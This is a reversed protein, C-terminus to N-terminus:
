RILVLKGQDRRKGQELRYFYVSAPCRRGGADLGNWAVRHEGAPLPARVLDRVWRGQADFIALRVPGSRPLAFGVTAQEAFPNPYAPDLRFALATGGEPQGPAGSFPHEFIRVDDIAAEVTSSSGLDSAIFRLRMADTVTVVSPLDFTRMTWIPATTTVTELTVWTGGGDSSVQAQFADNTSLGTNNSYWRYYTLRPAAYITGDFVPSVLTTTGADIDSLDKGAGPNCNMTLYCQTGVLSNDNEPQVPFTGGHWTGVPDGREWRGVPATDEQGRTWGQDLEFDDAVGRLMTLDLTDVEGPQLLLTDLVPQHGFRVAQLVLPVEAPVAALFFVGATDTFVASLPAGRFDVKVDALMGALEHVVGYVSASPRPVLWRDHVTV